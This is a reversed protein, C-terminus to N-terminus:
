DALGTRNKGERKAAYLAQDARKVLTKADDGAPIGPPRRKDGASRGESM